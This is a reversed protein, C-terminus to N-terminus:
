AAKNEFDQTSGTQVKASCSPCQSIVIELHDAYANM